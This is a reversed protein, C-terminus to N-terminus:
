DKMRSKILNITWYCVAEYLEAMEPDISEDPDDTVRAGYYELIRRANEGIDGEEEDIVGGYVFGIIEDGVNDETVVELSSDDFGYSMFLGVKERTPTEPRLEWSFCPNPVNHFIMVKISIPTQSDIGLRRALERIQPFSLTLAEEGLMEMEVTQWVSRHPYEVSVRGEFKNPDIIPLSNLEKFADFVKKNSAEVLEKKRNERLREINAM